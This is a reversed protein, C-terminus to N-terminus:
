VRLKTKFFEKEVGRRIVAMAVIADADDASKDEAIVREELTKLDVAIVDYRAKDDRM